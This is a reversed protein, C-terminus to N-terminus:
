YDASAVLQEDERLKEAASLLLDVAAFNRSELRADDDKRHQKLMKKEYRRMGAKAREVSCRSCYWKGKPIWTRRPTICYLHYAEDCGDCLITLDDDRDSLCVRCLCSPCYWCPKDRQMDSAIQKSKLCCIHYYKYPCHSHGCVLFRKADEEPTGCIKCSGGPDINSLERGETSSLVTARSKGVPTQEKCEPPMCVELRKCLVCNGHLSNPEYGGQASENCTTSSCGKCYWSGTSTSPIPPDICSMHCVLKCVNCIVTSVGRTEKGCQDCASGKQVDSVDTREPYDLPQCGQSTSPVSPASEVLKKPESSGLVAGKLEEECDCSGRQRGVENTYSAETLSSLNNALDIIDQGAMKLNEWLLKLDDKFIEPACGYEGNKMRSDIVGFDFYKTREGDQHVTKRLVNCLLAFDESRLIDVLVNKCEAIGTNRSVTRDSDMEVKDRLSEFKSCSHLVDRICSQIGAGEQVGHLHMLGNLVYRWHSWCDSRRSLMESKNTNSYLIGHPGEMLPQSGSITNSLTNCTNSTRNAEDFAQSSSSNQVAITFHEEDFQSSMSSCLIDGSDIGAHPGSTRVKKKERSIMQDRVRKAADEPIKCCRPHNQWGVLHWKLRTVGHYGELSCWKCKWHGKERDYVLSHEWANDRLRTPYSSRAESSLGNIPLQPLNSFAPDNNELIVSSQVLIQPEPPAQQGTKKMGPRRKILIHHKAKAFVEKPVSTCKPHRFVGALHYHLRSTKGHGDMGCYRCRWHRAIEDIIVIHKRLNFRTKRPHKLIEDVACKESTQMHMANSPEQDNNCRVTGEQESELRSVSCWDIKESNLLHHSARREEVINLVKKPMEVPIKPCSSDTLHDKATTAGGQKNQSNETTKDVIQHENNLVHHKEHEMPLQEEPWDSCIKSQEYNEVPQGCHHKGCQNSRAALKEDIACKESTQMHMDNNSPQQDNKCPVTGEEESGTLHAKLTTVAGQISNDCELNLKERNQPNGNNKDVIHHENNLVHHKGNEIPLQEEAWDSGKKSQEYDEVPQGSHETGCQNSRAALEDITCNGSTQMHMGNNSPQQGNKYSVTGEEKVESCFLSVGDIKKYPPWPDRNFLQRAARKEEVFHLVQKSMEMPIKPCSSDTLHAKLTTVGGSRCLDCWKCQWRKKNGDLDVAHEWGIDRVGRLLLPPELDVPLPDKEAKTDDASSRTVSNVGNQAARTKRRERKKQLHERINEAVDAPVKPCMKVDLDGALHRKLRSVGGGYRTLHCYMCKWHQRNEDIMIGHKWGIDRSKWFTDTVQQEPVDVPKPEPEPEPQRRRKYTRLAEQSSWDRLHMKDNGKDKNADM